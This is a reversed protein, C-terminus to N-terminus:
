STLEFIAVEGVVDIRSGPMLHGGYCHYKSDSVTIHAHVKTEGDRETINGICSVIELPEEITVPHMEPSYFGFTAKKLTGIVFFVGNKIGEKKVLEEISGILDEGRSLKAFIVRCVKFGEYIM